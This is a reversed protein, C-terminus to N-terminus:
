LNSLASSHRRTVGDCVLRPDRDFTCGSRRHVLEYPSRERSLQCISTQFDGSREASRPDSGAEPLSNAPTPRRRPAASSRGSGTFRGDPRGHPTGHM